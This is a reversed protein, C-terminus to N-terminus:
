NSVMAILTGFSLDFFNIVGQWFSKVLNFVGTFFAKIGEWIKATDGEIIGTVIAMAGGVIQAISEFVKRFTAM